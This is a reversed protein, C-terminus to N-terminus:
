PTPEKPQLEELAVPLPKAGNRERCEQVLARRRAGPPVHGFSSRQVLVFRGRSGHDPQWECCLLDVVVAGSPEVRACQWAGDRVVTSVRQWKPRRVGGLWVTTPAADGPKTELRAQLQGTTRPSPQQYSQVGPTAPDFDQRYIVVLGAVVFASLIAIDFVSSDLRRRDPPGIADSGVMRRLLVAFRKISAAVFLRACRVNAFPPSPEESVGVRMKWGSVEGEWLVGRAEDNM